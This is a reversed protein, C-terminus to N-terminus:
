NTISIGKVSKNLLFLHTSMKDINNLFFFLSYLLKGWQTDKIKNKNWNLGLKHPTETKLFLQQHLKM